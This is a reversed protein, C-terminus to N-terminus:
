QNTQEHMIDIIRGVTEPDTVKRSYEDTGPAGMSVKPNRFTMASGVTTRASAHLQDVGASELILAANAPTVGSGALIHIRGAAQSKLKRIMELGEMASPACGSTLLIDCGMEILEELAQEPSRCVDFARHFTVTLEGAAEILRRCVSTDIRGDSCLAGIVVGDAGLGRATAIDNIMIEVEQGSYLFDGERPRILVHVKTNGKIGVAERILGASPTLGGVGLASCLEVRDAGAKVAARVSGIDGCCIELIRSM